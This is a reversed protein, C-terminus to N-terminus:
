EAPKLVVSRLLLANGNRTEAVTTVDKWDTLHFVKYYDVYYAEKPSTLVLGMISTHASTFVKKAHTWKPGDRAVLYISAPSQNGSSLYIRDNLAAGDAAVDFAFDGAWSGDVENLPVPCYKEVTPKKGKGLTLRYIMGDAGAGTAESFYVNGMADMAIARIYTEHQYLISEHGERDVVLIKDGNISSCYQLGDRGFLWHTLTNGGTVSNFQFLPTLEHTNGLRFASLTGPSVRTEGVVIITKPKPSNAEEAAAVDNLISGAVSVAFFSRLILNFFTTQTM